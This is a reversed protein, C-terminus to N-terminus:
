QASTFLILSNSFHCIRELDRHQFNDVLRHSYYSLIATQCNYMCQPPIYLVLLPESITTSIIFFKRDHCNMNKIKLRFSVAPNEVATPINGIPPITPEKAVEKITVLNPRFPAWIHLINIDM